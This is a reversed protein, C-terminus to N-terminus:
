EYAMSYSYYINPDYIQNHFLQADEARMNHKMGLILWM